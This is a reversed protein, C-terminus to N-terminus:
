TRSLSRPGNLPLALQSSAVSPAWESVEEEEVEDEEDTAFIHPQGASNEPQHGRGVLRRAMDMVLPEAAGGLVLGIFISLAAGGLMWLRVGSGVLSSLLTQVPVREHPLPPGGLDDAWDGITGDISESVLHVSRDARVQRLRAEIVREHFAVDGEELLELSQSLRRMRDTLVTREWHLADLRETQLELEEQEPILVIAALMVLGTVLFLWGADFQFLSRTRKMGM